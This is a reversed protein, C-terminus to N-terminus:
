SVKYFVDERIVFRKRCAKCDFGLKKRFVINSHGCYPCAGSLHRKRRIALVTSVFVFLFIGSLSFFGVPLWKKFQQLQKLDEEARARYTYAEDLKARTESLHKLSDIYNRRVNSAGLVALSKSDRLLGGYTDSTDSYFKIWKLDEEILESQSRISAQIQDRLQYYRKSFLVSFGGCLFIVSLCLVFGVLIFIFFNTKKRVLQPSDTANAKLKVPASCSPCEIQTGIGYEPFEIGVGCSPCEIKLFKEEM